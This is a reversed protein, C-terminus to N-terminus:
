TTSPTSYSLKMWGSVMKDVSGEAPTPANSANCIAPSSRSMMPMMPMMRSIPMTLFFAIMIISKASAASRTSPRLGRSAMRWAQRSRKRGIRIVVSAAISPASGSISPVPAPESSRRGSPSHM